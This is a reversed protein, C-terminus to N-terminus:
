DRSTTKVADKPLSRVWEEMLRVTPEDALSSAMPPMQGRGRLRMRHLLVSRQPDGPAILRADPIDFKNHLPPLDILKTKDLPTKSLLDIAANGGGAWQHCIACNAHLYARVRDELPAAADYPDAFRPYEKPPKPLDAHKGDTRIVGIHALTRLQNDTRDGYKEDRNLQETQLGLIFNAARSHCVMCEARSPYHWTQKRVGATQGAEQLIFERDKGNTDVLVADTQEDNWEYSYGIWEKEQRSMLRTEIWRRSQPDGVTRELAFSKVLVTGDPFNWSKGNQTFEAFTEDPLAIFRDKHSGDSWLPANVSYPIVGPAVAHKAVATFLGTDSLQTPFPPPPTTPPPNPELKHFGTHQDVVLLDGGPTETFGVIAFPTDVLERHWTVQKGDYRVGWVKGTSYDGYIYAGQLESLETGYYVVGGTLSRAEIHHHEVVPPIIAGPGSAREPYFPHSGEQVSWGYNGGRQVVYVQEWLDQGNQGVWLQGTQKDFTMRWPNRFGFAWIEPRAEPMHIFPNDKPISYPRDKDPHDVDLRLMVALLDNVGQGTLLPDSDSTGDGTVCYLMGDPGFALEGGNHGNSEWEIIVLESQPDIPHPSERGITYRAIRNHKNEAKSPGNTVLYVYGNDVFRPHFCLGYILRDLTLVTELAATNQDDVFRRLRGPGVGGGLTEVVLFTGRGPEAALYLPDKLELQAFVRATRYPPPPNPSGIVRSTTWPTRQEIGFPRAEDAAEVLGMCFVFVAAWSGVHCRM